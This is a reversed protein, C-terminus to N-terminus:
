NCGVPAGMPEYCVFIDLCGLPDPLQPQPPHYDAVKALPKTLNQTQLNM